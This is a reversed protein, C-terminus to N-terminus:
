PEAPLQRLRDAASAREGRRAKRRRPVPVARGPLCLGPELRPRAQDRSGAHLRRLIRGVGRHLGRPGCSPLRREVRRYLAAPEGGPSRELLFAVNRDDETTLHVHRDTVASRVAAPWSKWSTLDAVSDLIQDIADLRLGDFRYEEIWYLANEIFFDRVPRREYAIAAGWPTHRERHFFEPAYLHLYNGDPGFHNYVVDLLVM